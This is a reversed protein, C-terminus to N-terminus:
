LVLLCGAPETAFGSNGCRYQRAHRGAARHAILQISKLHGIVSQYSDAMLM